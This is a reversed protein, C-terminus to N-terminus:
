FSSVHDSCVTLLFYKDNVRKLLKSFMEGNGPVGDSMVVEAFNGRRANTHSFASPGFGGALFRLVIFSSSTLLLM